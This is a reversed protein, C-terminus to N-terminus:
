VPVGGDPGRRKWVDLLPGGYGYVPDMRPAPVRRINADAKPREGDSGYCMDPRQGDPYAGVVMFDATSAVRKHAVGAPIVVVDGARIDFVPGSEGGLQVRASGAYVGLAEHATSHYHHVGFIGNRWSGGWGNRRFTEEVASILAEVSHEAPVAAEIATEASSDNASAEGGDEMTRGTSPARGAEREKEASGAGGASIAGRYLLLPLNGNNPFLGDDELLVSKVQKGKSSRNGQM